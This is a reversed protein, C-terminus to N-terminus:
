AAEQKCDGSAALERSAIWLLVESEKWGVINPGIKYRKPFLNAEEWRRLTMKSVGVLKLVAPERLFCDRFPPCDSKQAARSQITM